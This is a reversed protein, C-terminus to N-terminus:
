LLKQFVRNQYITTVLIDALFAFQIYM